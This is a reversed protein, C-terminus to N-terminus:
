EMLNNHKWVFDQFNVLGFAIGPEFLVSMIQRILFTESMLNM